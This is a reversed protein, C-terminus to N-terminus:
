WRGRVPARDIRTSTRQRARTWVDHCSDRLAITDRWEGIASIWSDCAHPVLSVGSRLELISVIQPVYVIESVCVIQPISVIQPVCVIELISVIESISVIRPVSVIQPSSLVIQTTVPLFM